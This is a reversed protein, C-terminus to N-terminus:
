DVEDFFRRLEKVLDLGTLSRRTSAFECRSRSRPLGIPSVLSLQGRRASIAMEGLFDVFLFDVLMSIGARVQAGMARRM